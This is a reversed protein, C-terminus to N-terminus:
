LSRDAILVVQYLSRDAILVVLYLSRDVILVVQYLSRDAILVMRYLSRANNTGFLQIKNYVSIAILSIRKLAEQRDQPKSKYRFKM